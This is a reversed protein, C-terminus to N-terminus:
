DANHKPGGHYTPGNFDDWFTIANDIGIYEGAPNWRNSWRFVQGGAAEEMESEALAAPPPLVVHSTDAVDEHVKITFGEPITLGLEERIAAKPDALLSSRFTGDETARSVLRSRLEAITLTEDSM